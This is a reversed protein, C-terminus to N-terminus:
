GRRGVGVAEDNGGNNTRPVASRVDWGFQSNEFLSMGAATLLVHNQDLFASPGATRGTEYFASAFGQTLRPHRALLKPFTSAALTAAYTTGGYVATLMSVAAEGRDVERSEVNLVRECLRALHSAWSSLEYETDDITWLASNVVWAHIDEVLQRGGAVYRRETALEEPEVLRTQITKKLGEWVDPARDDVGQLWSATGRMEFWGPYAFTLLHPSQVTYGDFFEVDYLSIVRAITLRPSGHKLYQDALSKASEVSIPISLSNYSPKGTDIHEETTRINVFIRAVDGAEDIQLFFPSSCQGIPLVANRQFFGEHIRLTQDSRHAHSAHSRYIEHILTVISAEYPTACEFRNLDGSSMLSLEAQEIRTRVNAQIKGVHEDVQHSCVISPVGDIWAVTPGAEDPDTKQLFLALQDANLNAMSTVFSAMAAGAAEAFVSAELSLDPIYFNTAYRTAHLFIDFLQASSVNRGLTSRWRSAIARIAIYGRFYSQDPQRLYDELRDPAISRLADGCRREFEQFQKEAQERLPLTSANDHFFDVLNRLCATVPNIGIPDLDPDAGLEGYVALGELWPTWTDVLIQSKRRIQILKEAPMLYAADGPRLRSPVGALLADVDDRANKESAMLAAYAMSGATRLAILAVGIHGLFSLVHTVEHTLLSLREPLRRERLLSSSHPIARAYDALQFTWDVESTSVQDQSIQKELSLRENEFEVEAILLHLIGPIFKQAEATSLRAVRLPWDPAGMLARYEERAEETVVYPLLRLRLHKLWEHRELSPYIVEALDRRLEEEAAGIREIAVEVTDYAEFRYSLDRAASAVAAVARKASMVAVQAPKKAALALRLGAAATDALAPDEEGMLQIACALLDYAIEADRAEVEAAVGALSLALESNKFSTHRDADTEDPDAWALAYVASWLAIALRADDGDSAKIVPPGQEDLLMAHDSGHEDWKYLHMFLVLATLRPSLHQGLREATAFINEDDARRQKGLSELRDEEAKSPRILYAARSLLIRIVDELKLLDDM